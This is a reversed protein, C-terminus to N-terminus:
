EAPGYHLGRQGALSKTRDELAALEGESLPEYSRVLDVAQNLEEVSCLGMVGATVGELGLAYRITPAYLADSTFLGRGPGYQWGVVGGLMKMAMVAIGRERAAPVVRSEFVYTHRDVINLPFMVVDIDDAIEFLRLFAPPKLHGTAGIHKTLGQEKMERVATLPGESQELEDLDFDGINHLHLLEVKDTQMDALSKELQRWVGDRGLPKIKSVLFMESRRRGIVSGAFAQVSGYTSATDLYNIGADLAGNLVEVVTQEPLRGDGLAGLGLALISTDYGTRGLVRKPIPKPEAADDARVAGALAGAAVAGAAARLFGRRSLRLTGVQDADREQSMHRRKGGGARRGTNAARM